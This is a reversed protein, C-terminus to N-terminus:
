EVLQSFLGGIVLRCHTTIDSFMSFNPSPRRKRPGRGVCEGRNPVRMRVAGHVICEVVGDPAGHPGRRTFVLRCPLPEHWFPGGLIRLCRIYADARMAKRWWTAANLRTPASAASTTNNLGGNVMTWARRM